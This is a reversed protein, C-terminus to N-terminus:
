PLCSMAQWPDATSFTATAQMRGDRYSFAIAELVPQLSEVILACDCKGCEPPLPMPIEERVRLGFMREVGDPFDVIDDLTAIVAVQDIPARPVYVSWHVSRTDRLLRANGLSSCAWQEYRVKSSLQLAAGAELVATDGGWYIRRSCRNQFLGRGGLYRDVTAPFDGFSAKVVINVRASNSPDNWMDISEVTGVQRGELTIATGHIAGATVFPAGALLVCAAAALRRLPRGRPQRAAGHAATAVEGM